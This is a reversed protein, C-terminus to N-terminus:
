MHAVETPVRTITAFSVVILTQLISMRRELCLPVIRLPFHTFGRNSLSPISADIMTM